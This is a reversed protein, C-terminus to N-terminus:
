LKPLIYKRVMYNSFSNLVKAKTKEIINQSRENLLWTDIIKINGESTLILNTLELYNWENWFTSLSGPAWWRKVLLTLIPLILFRDINWKKLSSLKYLIYKLYGERWWLDLWMWNNEISEENLKLLKSVQASVKAVNQTTVYEWETFPQTITYDWKAENKFSTNLIYDSFNDALYNIHSKARDWYSKRVRRPKKTIINNLKYVHHEWWTSIHKWYM